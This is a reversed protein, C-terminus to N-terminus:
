KQSKAGASKKLHKDFFQEILGRTEDSNFGPGGHGGGPVVHLTSEVGASGLGAHLVESQRLMVIPDKDGHIILFPPAM